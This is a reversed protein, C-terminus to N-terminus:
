NFIRYVSHFSFEVDMLVLSLIFRFNPSNQMIEALLVNSERGKFEEEGYKPHEMELVVTSTSTITVIGVTELELM